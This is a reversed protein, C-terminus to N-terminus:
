LDKLRSTDFRSMMSVENMTIQQKPGQPNNKVSVRGQAVQTRLQQLFTDNPVVVTSIDNGCM